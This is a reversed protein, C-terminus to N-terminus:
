ATTFLMPAIVSTKLVTVAAINTSDYIQNPSRQLMISPASLGSSEAAFREIIEAAVMTTVTNTSIKKTTPM